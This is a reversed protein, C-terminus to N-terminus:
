TGKVFENTLREKLCVNFYYNLCSSIHCGEIREM